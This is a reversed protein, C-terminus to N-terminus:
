AVLFRDPAINFFRTGRRTWWGFGPPIAKPRRGMPTWHSIGLHVVESTTSKRGGGKPLWVLAVCRRNSARSRKAGGGRAASLPEAPVASPLEAAAKANRAARGARRWAWTAASGRFVGTALACAKTRSDGEALTVESPNASGSEQNASTLPQWAACYIRETISTLCTMGSSSM